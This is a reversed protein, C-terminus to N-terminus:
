LGSFAVRYGNRCYTERHRWKVTAAIRRARYEPDANYRRRHWDASYENRLLRARHLDGDAKRIWSLCVAATSYSLGTAKEVKGATDAGLVYAAHVISLQDNKKM